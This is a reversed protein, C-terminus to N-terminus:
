FSNNRNWVQLVNRMVSDNAHNQDKM